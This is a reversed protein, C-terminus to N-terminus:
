SKKSNEPKISGKKGSKVRLNVEVSWFVTRLYDLSSYFHPEVNKVFMKVKKNTKSVKSISKIQIARLFNRTQM